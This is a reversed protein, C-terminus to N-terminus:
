PTRSRTHSIATRAPSSIMAAPLCRRRPHRRPRGREGTGHAVTGLRAAGNRVANMCEPAFPTPAFNVTPEIVCELRREACVQAAVERLRREMVDLTPADAARLDASFIVTGSDRQAFQARGQCLRGHRAHRAAHPRHPRIEQMILTAGQLATAACAWRRRVAHAEMGTVTLNFWRQRSGRHGRRDGQPMKWCPGQEIHAEFYAAV